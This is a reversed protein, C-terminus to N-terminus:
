PVVRGVQEKAFGATRKYRAAIEALEGQSIVEDISRFGQPAREEAIQMVQEPGNRRNALVIASTTERRRGDYRLLGEEVTTEEALCEAVAAADLIAQSAGNSGIPYMPHAADGLLTVRGFSWAPLPDRDSMPFEYIAAAGAIVAPVDLWDFTWEAFYRDFIAPPVERNWDQRPPTAGDVAREAIWNTLSRGRDHSQRSIPYCVFKQNQHGAMIMTRGGLFCDTETVARWLM